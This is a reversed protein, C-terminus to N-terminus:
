CTPPAESELCERVLSVLKRANFPKAITRTAGFSMAMRLYDTDAPDGARLPRPTGGSMMVIPLDRSIQRLERLTAIGDKNPMFIDCLVLDFSSRLFQRLGDDGDTALAVEHGSSGLMQSITTQVLEDDEIVLIRAVSKPTKWAPPASLLITGPWFPRSFLGCRRRPPLSPQCRSPTSLPNVGLFASVPTTVIQQM